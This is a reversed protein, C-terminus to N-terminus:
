KAYRVEPLAKLQDKTMNVVAHDPYGRYADHSGGRDAMTTTGANRDTTTTTTTTTRNGDTARETTTSTAPATSSGSGTMTTRTNDTNSATRAPEDVWKVQDWPIAVLHEGMGLFGGVGVVVAGVKGEREILLDSIDGIKENNANYVNLGNLKSARFEGAKMQYLPSGSQAAQQAKHDTSSTQAMAPLSILSACVFAMALTTKM